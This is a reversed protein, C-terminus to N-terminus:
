FPIRLPHARLPSLASILRWCACVPAAPLLLPPRLTPFPCLFKLRGLPLPLRRLGVVMRLPSPSRPRLRCIPLTSIYIGFFEVRLLSPQPSAISPSPDAKSSPSPGRLLALTILRLHLLSPSM